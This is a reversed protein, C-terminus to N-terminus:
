TRQPLSTQWLFADALCTWLIVDWPLCRHVSYTKFHGTNTHIHTQTCTWEHQATCCLRTIWSKSGSTGRQQNRQSNTTKVSHWKLHQISALFLLLSLTWGLGLTVYIRLLEQVCSCSMTICICMLFICPLFNRCHQRVQIIMSGKM